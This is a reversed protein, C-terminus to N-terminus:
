AEHKGHKRPALLLIGGALMGLVSLLIGGVAAGTRALTSGESTAPEQSEPQVGVIGGQSAAAPATRGTATHTPIVHVRYVTKVLGDASVVTITATRGDKSLTVTVGLTKDYQPIITWKSTNPVSVTYEHKEPTFGSIDRGNVTIGTLVATHTPESLFTVRFVHQRFTHGDPALVSVTYEYTMGKVKRSAVSVAQGAKPQYSFVGGEPIVYDGTEVTEYRGDRTVYGHSTLNTDSDSTPEESATQKQPDRPTFEQDASKWSHERVVTVSYTRSAGSTTDTVIWQQTASDATQTVNGATVTVGPGAIPLIYPSPDKEGVTVTYALRNPNWRDILTGQTNQGSRNVYIGNLKAPSDAHIDSDQFNVTVTYPQGNVTITLIRTANQGLSATPQSVTADVGADAGLTFASTTDGAPLTITYDHKKPSFGNVTIPTTGQPGTSLVTLGNVSTDQARSATVNVTYSQKVGNVTISGTATGQRTVYAVDDRTVTATKGWTIPATTGDSLTITTAEPTNKNDLSMTAATATWTGNNLTFNGGGNKGNVTIPTGDTKRSTATLRVTSNSFLSTSTTVTQGLAPVTVTTSPKAILTYAEGVSPTITAMTVLSDTDVTATYVGDAGRTLLITKGSVTATMTVTQTRSATLTVTATYGDQTAQYTATRRYTAVGDNVTTTVPTERTRTLNVGNSLTLSAPTTNDEGLVGTISATATQGNVALPTGQVTVGTFPNEPQTVTTDTATVSIPKGTSTTGTYTTRTVTTTAGTAANRTTSLTSSNGRTLTVTKGTSETATLTATKAQNQTAISATYGSDTPSITQGHVTLTVPTTQESSTNTDPQNEAMAIPLGSGTALITAATLTALTQAKKHM